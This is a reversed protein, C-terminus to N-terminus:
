YYTYEYQVRFGYKSNAMWYVGYKDKYQNVWKRGVYDYFLPRVYKMTYRSVFYRIIKKM